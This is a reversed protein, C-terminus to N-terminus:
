ANDSWILAFESNLNTTNPYDTSPESVIPLLYATGIKLYDFQRLINLTNTSRQGTVLPLSDIIYNSNAQNIITLLWYGAIPNWMVNFKLTTNVSDIQLTIIFSQNKTTILPIVQYM